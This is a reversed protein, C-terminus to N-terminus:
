YLQYYVFRAPARRNWESRRLPTGAISHHNAGVHENVFMVYGNSIINFWSRILAAIWPMSSACPLMEPLAAPESTPLHATWQSLPPLEPVPSPPALKCEDLLVDLPLAKPKAPPLAAIGGEFRSQLQLKNDAHVQTCVLVQNSFSGRQVDKWSPEPDHVTSPRFVVLCTRLKRKAEDMTSRGGRIKNFTHVFINFTCVPPPWPPLQGFYSVSIGQKQHLRTVFIHLQLSGNASAVVKSMPSSFKQQRVDLFVPGGRAKSASALIINVQKKWNSRIRLQGLHQDIVDASTGNQATTSTSAENIQCRFSNAPKSQFQQDFNDVDDTGPHQYLQKGANTHKWLAHDDSTVDRITEGASQVRSQQSTSIGTHARFSDANEAPPVSYNHCVSLCSRPENILAPQCPAPCCLASSTVEFEFQQPIKHTPKLQTSSFPAAAMTTLAQQLQHQQQILFEMMDSYRLMMQDFSLTPKGPSPAHLCLGGPCFNGYPSAQVPGPGISALGIMPLEGSFAHDGHVPGFSSLHYQQGHSSPQPDHFEPGVPFHGDEAPIVVGDRLM